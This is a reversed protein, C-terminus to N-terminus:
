WKTKARGKGRRSRNTTGIARLLSAESRREFRNRRYSTHKRYARDRKQTERSQSESAAKTHKPNDIETKRQVKKAASLRRILKDSGGLAV